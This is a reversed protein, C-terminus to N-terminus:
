QTSAIWASECESKVAATRARRRGHDKWLDANRYCRSGFGKMSFARDIPLRMTFDLSRPPVRKGLEALRSKLDDLGTGTRSSVAIVPANELFSGTVLERAEDEVLALM